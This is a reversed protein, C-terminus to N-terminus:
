VHKDSSKLPRGELYVGKVSGEQTHGILWAPLEGLSLNEKAAVVIFDAKKGAELSGIEGELGLATAGGLTGMELVEESTVPTGESGHLELAARMEGWLSVSGHKMSGQKLSGQNFSLDTGLGVPIGADLIKRIPAKGLKLDINSRPCHVVSSRAQRILRLDGESLHLCGVLSPGAELFGISALYEIPTKRHPPPLNKGWGAHGFLYEAVEGKSDYFFQMEAFSEAAHIQLPIKSEMAHQALVKLLHRSLMFPAYPAVGARIRHSGAAKMEEVFDLSSEFVKHISEQQSLLIESFAVLRLGLGDVLSGPDFYGGVDAVCTTGSQLSRVLGTQISERRGEPSLNKKYDVLAIISQVFKPESWQLRSTMLDLHAHANVLGPMLVAPGFDIQETKPYRRILEEQTGVAVIDAGEVLLAGKEIPDGAIPLLYRACYLPM